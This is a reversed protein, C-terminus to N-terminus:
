GPWPVSIGVPHGQGAATARNGAAQTTRPEKENWLLINEQNLQENEKGLRSLDSQTKLQETRCEQQTHEWLVKIKNCAQKEKEEQARATLAEDMLVLFSKAYNRWKSQPYKILLDKFAERAKGYDIPRDEGSLQAYGEQFLAADSRFRAALSGPPEIPVQPAACAGLCILIMIITIVNISFGQKPL